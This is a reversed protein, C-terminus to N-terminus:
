HHTKKTPQWATGKWEGQVVFAAWYFSDSWRDNRRLLALQAERLSASPSLRQPGLMKKYFQQMLEATAEDDVEWLTSAIRQSGAYFFGRTLGILGEGKVDEGVATQCASLVILEVPLRLDYIEYLQLFGDQPRGQRDVLSLVIGSWDPQDNNLLAHTSFHVIAYRALDLSTVNKKNAKYENLLLAGPKAIEYISRAEKDSFLLPPIPSGKSPTLDTATASATLKETTSLARQAGVGKNSASTQRRGAVQGRHYFVPDAIIAVSPRSPTRGAQERRIAALTSASIEYTIENSALLPNLANVQLAGFPIFQLREDAVILLRKSGFLPAAKALLTSGLEKALQDRRAREAVELNRKALLERFPKAQSEIFTRGPLEFTHVETTSVVWLFSREDGLMYELLLTDDDLLEAQIEPCTLIRPEILQAYKRSRLKLKDEIERLQVEIAVLRNRVQEAQAPLLRNSLLRIQLDSSTSLQQRLRKEESLLEAEEVGHRIDSRVGELAELLARARARENISLASKDLGVRPNQAHLRMLVNVYQKYYDQVSAFYSVRLRDSAVRARQSEVIQIAAEIQDRAKGLDGLAIEIRSLEYRTNAEGPRYKNTVWHQLAKELHAVAEIRDGKAFHIVGLKHLTDGQGALDNINRQLVLAKNLNNIATSYQKLAAQADGLYALAEARASPNTDGILTLAKNFLPLAKEANGVVVHYRGLDLLTNAHSRIDGTKELIALAAELNGLAEVNQGLSVQVRGILDLMVAEGVKSLRSDTVRERYVTLAQHYYHLAEQNEGLLYSARGMEGLTFALGRPIDAQQFLTIAQEFNIRADYIEGANTNSIGLNLMLAAKEESTGHRQMLPLAQVYVDRAIPNQDLYGYCQAQNYLAKSEEKEEGLEQWLQVAQVYQKIAEEYKRLKMMLRGGESSVHTAAARKRDEPSAIRPEKITLDYSGKSEVSPGMTVKIEYTGAVPSVFHLSEESASARSTDLELLPTGESNLLTLAVNIRQSTVVVHLYQDSSVTINFFHADGQAIEFTARSAVASVSFRKQEGPKVEQQQSFFLHSWTEEERPVGARLSSSTLTAILFLAIQFAIYSSSTRGSVVSPFRDRPLPSTSEM